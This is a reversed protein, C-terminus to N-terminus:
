DTLRFSVPVDVLGAVTLDAKRAPLFRWQRVTELAAEDLLHYGSSERISVAEARGDANVRVRLVVRGEQGRRRALYPYRPAPNALGAGSYRPPTAAGVQTAEASPGGAAPAATPASPRPNIAPSDGSEAILSIPKAAQSAATAPQPASTLATPKAQPLPPPEPLAAIPEPPAAEPAPVPEPEPLPEQATAVEGPASESRRHDRSHPIETSTDAPAPTTTHATEPPVADAPRSELTSPGKAATTEATRAAVGPPERAPMEVTEARPNGPQPGIEDGPILEVAFIAIPQAPRADWFWAFAGFAAGHLGLSLVLAGLVAAPNGHTRPGRSGPDRPPM